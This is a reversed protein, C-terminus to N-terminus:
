YMEDVVKRIENPSFTVYYTEHTMDGTLRYKVGRGNEAAVHILELFDPDYFSDRMQDKMMPAVHKLDSVTMNGNEEVTLNCVVYSGDDTANAIVLGEDFTLPCIRSNFFSIAAELNNGIEVMEETLTDSAEKKERVARQLPTEDNVVISDATAGGKEANDSCSPFGTAAVAISLALIAKKM